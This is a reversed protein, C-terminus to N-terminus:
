DGCLWQSILYAKIELRTAKGNRCCIKLKIAALNIELTKSTFSLSTVGDQSGPTPFYKVCAFKKGM